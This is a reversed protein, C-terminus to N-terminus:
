DPSPTLTGILIQIARADRPGDLNMQMANVTARGVADRGSCTGDSDLRFHDAWRQRRPHYLPTLLGTSPDPAAAKNSKRLSCHPCQLALNEAATSGGRSRPWIHDIHFPAGQGYQAMRCYQCIGEDRSAILERLWPPIDSLSM